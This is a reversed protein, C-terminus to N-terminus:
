VNFDLYLLKVNKTLIEILAHSWLTVYNKKEINLNRLKIPLTHKQYSYTQREFRQPIMGKNNSFQSLPKLHYAQFKNPWFSWM